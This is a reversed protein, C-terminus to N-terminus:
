IPSWSMDGRMVGRSAWTAECKALACPYRPVGATTCSQWYGRVADRQQSTTAHLGAMYATVAMFIYFPSSPPTSAIVQCARDVASRMARQTAASAVAHGVAAPPLKALVAITAACRHANASRGWDTADSPDLRSLQDMALVCSHLHDSAVDSSKAVRVYLDFTDAPCGVVDFFGGEDLVERHWDDFILGTTSQRAVAGLVDFWVLRAVIEALGTVTGSLADLEARSRCHYDLLSRAGYVHRQWEGFESDYVEFFAFAAIALLALPNAVRLAENLGVLAALRHRAADMSETMPGGQQRGSTDHLPIAAASTAAAAAPSSYGQIRAQVFDSLHAVLSIAEDSLYGNSSSSSGDGGDGGGGGGRGRASIIQQCFTALRNIFSNHDDVGGRPSTSPVEHSDHGQLKALSVVEPVPPLEDTSPRSQSQPSSTSISGRSSRRRRGQAPATTAHPPLVHHHRPESTTAKTQTTTSSAGTWVVRQPYGGCALGAEVCPLCRPRNLDCKVNRSKCTRCDRDRRMGRPKGRPKTVTTTGHGVATTTATAAAATTHTRSKSNISRSSERAPM